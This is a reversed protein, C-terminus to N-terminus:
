EDLFQKNCYPCVRPDDRPIGEEEFEGVVEVEEEEDEEEVAIVNSSGLLARLREDLDHDVPNNVGSNINEREQLAEFANKEEAAGKDPGVIAPTEEESEEQVRGLPEVAGM